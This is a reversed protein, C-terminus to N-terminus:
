KMQVEQIEEKQPSVQLSSHYSAVAYGPVSLLTIPAFYPFLSGGMGGLVIGGVVNFITNSASEKKSVAKYMGVNAGLVAGSIIM